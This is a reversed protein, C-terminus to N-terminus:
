VGIRVVLGEKALRHVVNSSDFPMLPIARLSGDKDTRVVQTIAFRAFGDGLRTERQTLCDIEEQLLKITEIADPDDPDM